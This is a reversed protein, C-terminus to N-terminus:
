RYASVQTWYAACAPHIHLAKQAWRKGTERQAGGEDHLARAEAVRGAAAHLRASITDGSICLAAAAPFAASPPPKGAEALREALLVQAITGGPSTAPLRGAARQLRRRADELVLGSAVQLVGISATSAAAAGLGVEVQGEGGAGAAGRSHAAASHLAQNLLLAASRHNGSACALEADQAFCAAAARVPEAEVEGEGQPVASTGLLRSHELHEWPVGKSEQGRGGVAEAYQEGAAQLDGATWRCRAVQCQAARSAVSGAPALRVAVAALKAARTAVEPADEDTPRSHLWAESACVLSQARVVSAVGGGSGAGHETPLSYGLAWSGPGRACGGGDNSEVQCLRAAGEAMRAAAHCDAAPAGSHLAKRLAARACGASAAGSWPCGHVWRAAERVTAARESIRASGCVTSAAGPVVLAATNRVAAAAAGEPATLLDTHPPPICGLAARAGGGVPGVLVQQGLATRLPVGTRDLCPYLHVARACRRTSSVGAHGGQAMQQGLALTAQVQAASRAQRPVPNAETDLALPAPAAPVGGPGAERGVLAAMATGMSGRDGEAVASALVARWVRGIAEEGGGGMGGFVSPPMSQLAAVVAQREGQQLCLACLEELVPGVEAERLASRCDPAAEVSAATEESLQMSAAKVVAATAAPDQRLTAAVTAARWKAAGGPDRGGSADGDGVPDKAPKLAGMRNLHTYQAAAGKADGVKSLARALNARVMAEVGLAGPAHEVSLCELEWSRGGAAAASLEGIGRGYGESVGEKGLAEVLQLAARFAEVAEELRGGAEAVLGLANSGAPNLPEVAAARRASLYAEATDGQSLTASAVACRLLAEGGGGLSCAMSAAELAGGLRGERRHLESTATWAEPLTPEAARAQELAQGALAPSAAHLYARGLMSWALANKPELQLSRSIASEKLAPDTAAAALMGWAAASSPDLGLAARALRQGTAHLHLDPIRAALTPHARRLAAETLHAAAVDAHASADWPRLHLLKSYCRRAMRVAGVRKRWEELRTEVEGGAATLAPPCDEPLAEISPAAPLGLGCLPPSSAASTEAPAAVQPLAPTVGRHAILIDGLLKWASMVTSNLTSCHYAAALATQLLDAATGLAGVTLHAHARRLNISAYGLLAPAHQLDIALAAEYGQASKLLQGLIALVSAAQTQSYLRDPQLHTARTFSKLAAGYKALALYSAGIGEWLAANEADGRLAHQFAIIAAQHAGSRGHCFGLQASAWHMRQSRELAGKFLAVALPTSGEEILMRGLAKGAAEECPDLTMARQALEGCRLMSHSEEGQRRRVAQSAG